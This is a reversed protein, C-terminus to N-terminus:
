CLKGHTKGRLLCLVPNNSDTSHTAQFQSASSNADVGHGDVHCQVAEVDAAAAEEPM